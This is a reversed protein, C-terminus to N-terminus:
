KKLTKGASFAQGLYEGVAYYGRTVPAFIVPDVKRIDPMGDEGLCTEDVKVDLIEGIFQTHLGISHSHTLACEIVLSFEAVYPADVFGGKEPTLGLTEFKNETEGSVMGAYDAHAMYASSPISVTFARRALIAGHSYTAPRLSVALSPPKSCCIGAWAAAMINPRDQADYTGVCFLPAPYALTKAGFSKKM